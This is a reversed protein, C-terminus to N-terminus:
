RLSGRGNSVVACPQGGHSQHIHGVLQIFDGLPLAGRKHALAEANLGPGIPASIPTDQEPFVTTAKERTLSTGTYPSTFLGLNNIGNRVLEEGTELKTVHFAGQDMGVPHTVKGGLYDPVLFLVLREGQEYGSMGHIFTAPSVVQGHMTIEGGKGTAPKAAHGLQTFTVIAPLNGKIAREVQFTYDTVPMMGQAVMRITEDVAVCKGLFVRDAAVTMEELNSRLVAHHAQSTVSFSLICLAGLTLVLGVSLARSVMNPEGQM